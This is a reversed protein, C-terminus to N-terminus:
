PVSITYNTNNKLTQPRLHKKWMIELVDGMNPAKKNKIEIIEIKGKGLFELDDQRWIILNDLIFKSFWRLNNFFVCHWECIEKYIFLTPEV